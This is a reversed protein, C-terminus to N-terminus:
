DLRYVFEEVGEKPSPQRTVQVFGSKELVRQSGINPSWSWAGM